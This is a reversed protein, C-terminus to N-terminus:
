DKLFKDGLQKVFQDTNIHLKKLTRFINQYSKLPIDSYRCRLGAYYGCVAVNPKNSQFKYENYNIPLRSEYLLKSLYNRTQGTNVRDNKSKKIIIDDPRLGYSDNFEINNGHDILTCYHGVVNNEDMEHVYLLIIKKSRAFLQDINNLRALAPYEVLSSGPGAIKLVEKDSLLKSLDM